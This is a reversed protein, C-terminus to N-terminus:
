KNRKDYEDNVIDSYKGWFSKQGESIFSDGIIRDLRKKTDRVESDSLGKVKENFTDTDTAGDHRKGGTIGGRQAYDVGRDNLEDEVDKQMGEWLAREESDRSLFSDNTINALKKHVGELVDDALKKVPSKSKSSGSSKSSSSSKSSGSRKSSGGGGSKASGGVKGPRGSHGWNGSGKGGNFVAGLLGNEVIIEAVREVDEEPEEKFCNKLYSTLFSNINKNGSLRSDALLAIVMAQVNASENKMVNGGVQIKNM